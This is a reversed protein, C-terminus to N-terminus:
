KIRVNGAKIIELSLIANVNLRVETKVGDLKFIITNNGQDLEDLDINAKAPGLATYCGGPKVIDIFNITITKEEKQSSYDISYNICPFKKETEADIFVKQDELRASILIDSDITKEVSDKECSILLSIALLSFAIIKKM